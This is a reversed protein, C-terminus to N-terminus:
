GELILAAIDSRVAAYGPDSDWCPQWSLVVLALREREEQLASKVIADASAIWREIARVAYGNEVLWPTFRFISYGLIAAEADRERDKEYGGGRNHAGGGDVWTGGDIEVILMLGPWLLDARWDRDPHFHTDDGQCEALPLPLSLQKIHTWLHQEWKQRKAKAIAIQTETKPM